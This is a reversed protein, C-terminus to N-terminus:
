EDIGGQLYLEVHRRHVRFGLSVWDLLQSPLWGRRFEDALEPLRTASGSDKALMADDVAQELRAAESSSLQERGGFMQERLRREEQPRLSRWRSENEIRFAEHAQGEAMEELWHRAKSPDAWVFLHAGNQSGALAAKFSEQESLLLAKGRASSADERVAEVIQFAYTASNSVVLLDQSRSHLLVIEGTGPILTSVFSLGEAGTRSKLRQITEGGQNDTFSTWNVEFFHQVKELTQHSAVKGMVAFLPVPAGDNAPNTELAEYDNSRLALGLGPKYVAGIDRLLSLMGQYQGSDAVVRDLSQRMDSPAFLDYGEIIVDAPDGALAVFAFSSSPILSAYEKIRHPGLAPGGLWRKKFDDARSLDIDGSLRLRLDKELDFYGSLFRLLGTDFLRGFFQSLINQSNPDPLLGVQKGMEDWRLFIEIPTDQPGLFASVNDHFNSAQALSDQGARADLDKALSLFEPRSALLVVDKVRGLYADQFGFPEFQPLRYTGNGADEIQMGEPLKDRVFGFDLMSVGAKVKFSARMMIMGEFRDDFHLGGRGAIAVEQLFDEKLSLGTPLYDSISGLQNLVASVGTAAGLDMLAGSSQVEQYAPSATVTEWIAPEPFDRFQDGAQRWRMFYDVQSPVITASDGLRAEFPNFLITVFLMYLVLLVALSIIVIWMLRRSRLFDKLRDLAGYDSM